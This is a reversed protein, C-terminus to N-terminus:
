FTEESLSNGGCREQIDRRRWAEIKDWYDLGLGLPGLAAQLERIASRILEADEILPFPANVDLVYYAAMLLGQISERRFGLENPAHVVMAHLEDLREVLEARYQFWLKDTNGPHRAKEGEDKAHDPRM